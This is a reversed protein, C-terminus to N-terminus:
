AAPRTPESIHILSLEVVAGADDYLVISQGPAAGRVAEDLHVVLRLGGEATADTVVEATAAIEQGHARIQAGLRHRGQAAPGCWRM